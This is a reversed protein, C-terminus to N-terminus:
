EVRPYGYFELLDNELHRPDVKGNNEYRDAPIKNAQIKWKIEICVSYLGYIFLIALLSYISAYIIGWITRVVMFEFSKDLPLFLQYIISIAFISFLIALFSLLPILVYGTNGSLREFYYHILSNYSAEPLYNQEVICNRSYSHNMLMVM